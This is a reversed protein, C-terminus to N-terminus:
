DVGVSAIVHGPAGFRIHPNRAGDILLQAWQELDLGIRIFVDAKRLKVMFSPKADVEHPNAYGKTLSEVNVKDGGIYEAISKLDTSTTIVKLKKAYANGANLSVFFIFISFSLITVSKSIKDKLM